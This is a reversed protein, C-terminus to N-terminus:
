VRTRSTGAPPRGVTSRVWRPGMAAPHIGSQIAEDLLNAMTYAPDHALARDLAVNAMAGEGRQWCVYALLTAPAAGLPPVSLRVLETWLALAAAGRPGKVWGMCVDRVVLDALGVLARAAEGPTPRVPDEPTHREILTAIGALAEDRFRRRSNSARRTRAVAQLERAIEQEVATRAIESAPRIRDHLAQRSAAPALGAAVATLEAVSPRDGIPTGDPPCCHSSTCVYSRWRGECVLLLDALVMSRLHAQDAFAAVLDAHDYDLDGPEAYIVLVVIAVRQQGLRALVHEACASIGDRAPLDVRVSLAMRFKQGQSRLGIAVLSREPHFGLLYPVVGVIDPPTDLRIVHRQKPKRPM